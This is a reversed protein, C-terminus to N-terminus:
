LTAGLVFLVDLQEDTYGLVSALAIVTTSDRVVDNAYQWEIKLAEDTSDAIATDVETLLGQELLALKAQRMSIITPINSDIASVEQAKADIDLQTLAEEDNMTPYKISGINTDLDIEYRWLDVDETMDIMIHEELINEEGKTCITGDTYFYINM